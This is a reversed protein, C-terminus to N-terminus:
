PNLKQDIALAALAAGSILFGLVGLVACVKALTTWRLSLSVFFVYPIINGLATNGTAGVFSLIRDLHTVWVAVVWCLALLVATTVNFLIPESVAESIAREEAYPERRVTDAIDERDDGDPAADEVEEYGEAGSRWKRFRVALRRVLNMTSIRAPHIQMPISTGVLLTLTLCASITLPDKPPYNVLVDGHTRDGFTMYAMTAAALYFVTAAAVSVYIVKDVRQPTRNRLENFMSYINQHCAYIFSLIPLASLLSISLKPPWWRLERLPIRSEPPLRVFYFVFVFILMYLTAAQGIFSTFRFARFNKAWCVPGIVVLTVTAWFWRSLLFSYTPDAVLDLGEAFSPGFDGIGVFFSAATGFCSLLVVADVVDVLWPYTIDCVSAWSPIVGPPLYRASSCLLRCTFTTMVAWSVILVYSAVLGYQSVLYPLSLWGAGILTKTLTMISTFVARPRRARTPPFCVRRSVLVLASSIM